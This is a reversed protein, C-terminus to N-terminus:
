DLYLYSARKHNSYIREKFHEMYLDKPPNPRFSARKGSATHLKDLNDLLYLLYCLMESAFTIDNNSFELIERDSYREHPPRNKRYTILRNRAADLCDLITKSDDLPIDCIHFYRSETVYAMLNLFRYPKTKQGRRKASQNDSAQYGSCFSIASIDEHNYTLENGMVNMVVSWQPLKCLKKASQRFSLFDLPVYPMNVVTRLKQLCLFHTALRIYKQHYDFIGADEEDMLNEAFVGNTATALSAMMVDVSAYVADYDWQMDKFEKAKSKPFSCVFQNILESLGDIQSLDFDNYAILQKNFEERTSFYQEQNLFM